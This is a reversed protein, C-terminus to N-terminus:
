PRDAWPLSAERRLRENRRLRIQADVVNEHIFDDLHGGVDLLAQIYALADSQKILSAGGASLELAEGDRALAGFRSVYASVPGGWRSLDLGDRGPPALGESIELQPRDYEFGLLESQDMARLQDETLLNVFTQVTAGSTQMLTAPASGYSCIKASYVVCYDSLNVRLTPVVTAPDHAFKRRLRSPAANSGCAIVAFRPPGALAEFEAASLAKLIPTPGDAGLVIADTWAAPATAELRPAAILELVRGSALVYSHA